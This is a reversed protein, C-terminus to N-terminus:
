PGNGPKVCRLLYTQQEANWQLDGSAIQESRKRREVEQDFAQLCEPHSPDLFARGMALLPGMVYREDPPARNPVLRGAAHEAAAFRDEAEAYQRGAELGESARRMMDAKQARKLKRAASSKTKPSARGTHKAKGKKQKKGTGTGTGAAAAAASRPPPMSYEIGTRYGTGNQTTFRVAFCM